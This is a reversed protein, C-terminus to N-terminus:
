PAVGGGGGTSLPCTEDKGGYWPSVDRGGGTSLPCTEDKGGCLASVPAPLVRKRTANTEIQQSKDNGSTTQVPAGTKGRSRARRRWPRRRRCLYRRRRARWVAGRASPPARAARAAAGAKQQSPRACAPAPLASEVFRAGFIPWKRAFHTHVVCKRTTKAVHQFRFLSKSLQRRIL